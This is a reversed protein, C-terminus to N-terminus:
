LATEEIFFIRILSNALSSSTLGPTMISRNGSNPTVSFFVCELETSSSTAIMKRSRRTPPGGVSPERASLELPMECSMEEAFCSTGALGAGLVSGPSAEPGGFGEAGETAIGWAELSPRTSRSAASGSGVGVGEAGALSTDVAEDTGTGLAAAAPSPADM